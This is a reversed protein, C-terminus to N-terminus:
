METLALADMVAPTVPSGQIKSRLLGGNMVMLYRQMGIVAVDGTLEAAERLLQPLLVRGQGDIEAEQGYYGTTETFMEKAESSPRAKLEEEIKEWRAMPYIEARKGDRSTIYVKMESLEELERKFAAPVKLRGKEDLRAPHNGRFM